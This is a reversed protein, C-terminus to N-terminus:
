KFVQHLTLKKEQFDIIGCYAASYLSLIIIAEADIKRQTSTARSGLSPTSAAIQFPALRIVADLGIQYAQM